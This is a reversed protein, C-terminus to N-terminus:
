GNEPHQTMGARGPGRGHVKPVDRVGVVGRAPEKGGWLPCFGPVGGGGRELTLSPPTDALTLTNTATASLLIPGLHM